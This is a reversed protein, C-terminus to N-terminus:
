LLVASEADLVDLDQRREGGRRRDGDFLGQSGGAAFALPRAYSFSRPAPPIRVGGVGVPQTKDRGWSLETHESQRARISASPRQLGFRVPLQSFARRGTFAAHQPTSCVHLVRQRRLSPAPCSPTFWAPPPRRPLSPAVPAGAQERNRLGELNTM